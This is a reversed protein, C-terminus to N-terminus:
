TLGETLDIMIESRARDMETNRPITNRYLPVDQLAAKTTLQMQALGTELTTQSPSRAGLSSAESTIVPLMALTVEAQSIQDTLM